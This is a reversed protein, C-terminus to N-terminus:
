RVDALLERDEQLTARKKSFYKLKDEYELKFFDDCIKKMNLMYKSRPSPAHALHFLHIPKKPYTAAGLHCYGPQWFNLGKLDFNNGHHLHEQKVWMMTDEPAWGWFIEPDYGGVTEFDKRRLFLCGGPAGPDAQPMLFKERNELSKDQIQRELGDISIANSGQVVHNTFEGNFYQLRRESFPQLFSLDPNQLEEHVTTLWHTPVLTDACHFAYWPSSPALLYSLNHALGESHKNETESCSFPVFIYSVEQREASKRLLPFDGMELLTIEVSKNFPSVKASVNLYDLVTNVLSLRGCAGIIINLQPSESKYRRDFIFEKNSTIEQYNYRGQDVATLYHDLGVPAEKYDGKKEQDTM